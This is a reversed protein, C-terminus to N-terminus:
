PPFMLVSSRWSSRAAGFLIVDSDCPPTPGRPSSPPSEFAEEVTPLRRVQAASQTSATTCVPAEQVEAAEAPESREKVGNIFQRLLMDQAYKLPEVTDLVFTMYECFAVFTLLSGEHSLGEQETGRLTKFHEATAGRRLVSVGERLTAFEDEELAGSSNVDHLEFLEKLLTVAVSTQKSETSPSKDAGAHDVLSENPRTDEDAHLKFLDRVVIRDDRKCPQGSPDGDVKKMCSWMGETNGSWMNVGVSAFRSLARGVFDLSESVATIKISGLKELFSDDEEDSGDDSTSGTGCPFRLDAAQKVRDSQDGDKWSIIYVNDGNGVQVTAPYWEGDQHLAEVADGSRFHPAGAKQGAAEASRVTAMPHACGNSEYFEDSCFAQLSSCRVSSFRQVFQCCLM